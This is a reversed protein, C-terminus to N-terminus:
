LNKLNFKEFSIENQDGHRQIEIYFRDKYQSKLKIYLEKIEKLNVKILYNVLYVM